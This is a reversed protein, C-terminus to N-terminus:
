AARRQQPYEEDVIPAETPMPPRKIPHVNTLKETAAKPNQVNYLQPKQREPAKSTKAYLPQPVSIPEWKEQVEYYGFEAPIPPNFADYNDYVEGNATNTRGAAFYSADLDEVRAPTTALDFPTNENLQPQAQEKKVDTVNGTNHTLAATLNPRPTASRQPQFPVVNSIPAPVVGTNAVQNNAAAPTVIVQKNAVHDHQPLQRKYFTFFNESEDEEERLEKLNGVETVHLYMIFFVIAIALASITVLYTSEARFEYIGALLALVLASISIGSFARTTEVLKKLGQDNSM